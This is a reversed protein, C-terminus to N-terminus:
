CVVIGGSESASYPCCDPLVAMAAANSSMLATLIPKWSAVSALM